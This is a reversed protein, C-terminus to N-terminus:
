GVSTAKLLVLEVLSINRSLELLVDVVDGGNEDDDISRDRAEIGADAICEGSQRGEQRGEEGFSQGGVNAEHDGIDRIGDCLVKVYFGDQLLGFASRLEAEVVGEREM